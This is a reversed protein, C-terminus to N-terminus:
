LKVIGGAHVCCRRLRCAGCLPRVPRCIKQGFRVMIHNIGTWRELPFLGELAAKSREPTRTCVLGIRNSIRHVHVDVCVAPEGFVMGMMFSATKLGVGPLAMLEEATAPVRGGHKDLLAACIRRLQGAKQRFFGAPRLLSELEAPELALMTVPDPARELLAASVMSTVTDRTRLSIITSVLVHFPDSSREMPVPLGREGVMREMLDLIGNLDSKAASGGTM